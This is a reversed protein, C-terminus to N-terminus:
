QSTRNKSIELKNLLLSITYLFGLAAIMYQGLFFRTWMAPFLLYHLFIYVCSIVSLSIIPNAIYQKFRQFGSQNSDTLQYFLIFQLLTFVIFMWFEIEYFIWYLNAIVESIYQQISIGYQSFEAPHTATMNSIFVYYFVTSWGYNGAYKNVSIYLIGAAIATIVAKIRASEWFFFIFSLMIAVLVALDTRVLVSVAILPYVSWHKKVFATSIAAIWLYALTDATVYQGADLAGCLVFFFPIMFWFAPKIYNKFCYFYLIMGASVAAAAVIHGASFINIGFNILLYILGVFLIRIKYYPIQQNFADSDKHMTAAYDSGSLLKVRDNETGYHNLEDYVYNHIFEPDNYELSVASASYGLMDWNQDASHICFFFFLLSALIMVPFYFKNALMINEPSNQFYDGTAHTGFM